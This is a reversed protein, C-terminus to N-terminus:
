STKHYLKMWKTDITKEKKEIEPVIWEEILTNRSVLKEEVHSPM